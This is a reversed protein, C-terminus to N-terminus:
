CNSSFKCCQSRSTVSRCSSTTHNFSRQWSNKWSAWSKRKSNLQCRKKPACQTLVSHYASITALKNVSISQLLTYTIFM